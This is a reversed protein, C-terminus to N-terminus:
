LEDLGTFTVSLSGAGLTSTLRETDLIRGLDTYTYSSFFDKYFLVLGNGSWLKLDGARIQEAPQNDVTFHTELHKYKENGNVDEMIVTLPLLAVFEQAAQSNNLEIEFTQNNIIAQIM